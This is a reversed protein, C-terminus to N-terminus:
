LFHYIVLRCLATALACGFLHASRPRERFPPALSRASKKCNWSSLAFFHYALSLCFVSRLIHAHKKGAACGRKKASCPTIIFCCFDRGHNPPIAAVFDM